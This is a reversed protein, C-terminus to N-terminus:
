SGTGEFKPDGARGDLNESRKLNDPDPAYIAMKFKKWSAWGNKEWEGVVIGYFRDEIFEKTNDPFYQHLVWRYFDARALHPRASYQVTKIAWTGCGELSFNDRKGIMLQEHEKPIVAEHSFRLINFFDRVACYCDDVEIDGTLPTDHECFLIQESDVIELARKTMGVQHTHNRFFLPTILPNASTIDLLRKIYLDYDEKRGSQERRLGDIMVIIETNKFRSTISELTQEIIDTSPHSPIVSTPVLATIGSDAGRDVLGSVDDILEKALRRKQVQWWANCENAKAQWDELAKEIKGPAERWDNIFVFPPDEGFMNHWFGDPYGERSPIRDVVPVCGLELAEYVRFTDPTEPGSPCLAAKAASMKQYYEEPEMGQAFGSTAYLNKYKGKVARYMEQRRQHNIQGSFFVDITKLSQHKKTHPTYGNPLARVGKHRDPRPSMVWLKMNPHELREHPFVSAEDGILVVVCGKLKALEENIRDVDNAHHRAHIVVIGMDLGKISNGEHHELMLPMNGFKGDLIDEFFKDDWQGRPTVEDHLSLWFVDVRM